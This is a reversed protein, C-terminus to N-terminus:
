TPWGGDNITNSFNGQLERQLQEYTQQWAALQGEDRLAETVGGFYADVDKVAAEKVESLLREMWRRYHEVLRQQAEGLVRQVPADLRELLAEKMRDAGGQEYFSKANKYLALVPQWNEGELEALGDPLEPMDLSYATLQGLRCHADIVSLEEQMMEQTKQAQQWVFRESRLATARLEQLLEDATDKLLRALAKRLQERVPQSGEGVASFADRFFEPVRLLLRQRVYYLLEAVEKELAVFVAQVAFGDLVAKAEQWAQQASALQRAREERDGAAVRLMQELQQLCRTLEAEANQLALETLQHFIFGAFVEEFQELGSYRWATRPDDGRGEGDAERGSLCAQLPKVRELLQRYRREAAESWVGAAKKARQAALLALQSSVPFLHPDAIGLAGLEQRVHGMVQVLEETSAALDAANLLFFMNDLELASKVRGMQLLFARDAKSFAHNFYTVYLVADAEKLYHFAVGTHRAHISDAGPTDVLSVGRVTLPNHVYLTVTEVFCARSEDAVWRQFEAVDVQITQGLLPAMDAWGKAAARLFAVHMAAESAAEGELARLWDMLQAQQPDFGQGEWGDDVCIGCHRLAEAVDRFMAAPTKMRIDATGPPHGDEPARIVNIAATTPNPSVPLLMDGLLANAFSSKGASFAGFLAVTFRRTELREARRRLGDAWDAFRPLGDLLAACRRLRAAMEVLQRHGAGDDAADAASAVERLMSDQVGAEGAPSDSPSATSGPSSVSPSSVFASEASLSPAREESGVESRGDSSIDMSRQAAQELVVRTKTRWASGNFDAALREEYMSQQRALAAELAQLAQQAEALPATEALQRELEEITAALTQELRRRAEEVMPLAASRWRRKLEHSVDEAYQLVYREDAVAGPKVQEVLVDATWPVQLAYVAQEWEDSPVGYEGPLQVLLRKVHWELQAEAQQALAEAFARLAEAEAKEARKRFLRGTRQRKERAELYAKGLQRIDYPFLPANALLQQLEREAAEQFAAPRERLRALQQVIEERQALKRGADDTELLRQWGAAEEERQKRMWAGHRAILHRAAAYLSGPRVSPWRAAAAQLFALLAPWQNAPHDAVKMSTLYVALPQVGWHALAQEVSARYVALPLEWENHKDIQNVVVLLPKDQAHLQRLFQWNVESQVHNYDTVYVVVDALHLASETALQHAADNSDVGPTDMVILGSQLVPSPVCIRVRQAALSDKLLAQGEKVADPGHFTQKQGSPTEVHMAWDGCTLFVANASTPIPSSPLVPMDLLRNILTSKGASFHGCFAVRLGPEWAAAALERMKAATDEDGAQAMEEALFEVNQCVTALAAREEDTLATQSHTSWIETM